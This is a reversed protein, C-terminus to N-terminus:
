GRHIRSQSNLKRHQIKYLNKKDELFTLNLRLNSLNISLLSFHCIKFKYPTCLSLSLSFQGELGELFFRQEGEEILYKKTKFKM